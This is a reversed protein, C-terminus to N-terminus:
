HEATSDSSGYGEAHRGFVICIAYKIICIDVLDDDTMPTSQGALFHRVATMWCQTVQKDTNNYKLDTQKSGGKM